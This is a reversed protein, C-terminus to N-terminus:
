WKMSVHLSVSSKTSNTSTIEEHTKIQRPVHFASQKTLFLVSDSVCEDANQWSSGLWNSWQLITFIVWRCPWNQWGIIRTLKTESCFVTQCQVVPTPRAWRAGVPTPTKKPTTSTPLPHVTWRPGVWFFLLGVSRYSSFACVYMLSLDAISSKIISYSCFHGTQLTRPCNGSPHKAINIHCHLRFPLKLSISTFCCCQTQRQCSRSLGHVWWHWLKRRIAQYYHSLLKPKPSVLETERHQINACSGLNIPVFHVKSFDASHDPLVNIHDTKLLM